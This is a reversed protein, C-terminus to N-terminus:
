KVPILISALTLGQNTNDRKSCGPEPTFASLSRAMKVQYM